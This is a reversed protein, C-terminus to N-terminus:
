LWNMKGTVSSLVWFLQDAQACGTLQFMPLVDELAVGYFGTNM